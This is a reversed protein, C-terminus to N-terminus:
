VLGRGCRRAFFDKPEIPEPSSTLARAHAFRIALEAFATWLDRLECEQRLPKGITRLGAFQANPPSPEIASSENASSNIADTRWRQYASLLDPRRQALAAEFRERAQRM